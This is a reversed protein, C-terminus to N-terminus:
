EKQNATDRVNIRLEGRELFETTHEAISAPAANLLDTRLDTTAEPPKSSRSGKNPKVFVAQLFPYCMLGIGLLAVLMAIVSVYPTVTGLLHINEKALVKLGAGVAVGVLMAVFGWVLMTRQWPFIAEGTRACKLAPSQDRILEAVAQLEMGCSRCFKQDTSAESSCNPCYM